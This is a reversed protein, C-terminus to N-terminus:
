SCDIMVPDESKSSENSCPRNHFDVLLKNSNVQVTYCIELSSWFQVMEHLNLLKASCKCGARQKIRSVGSYNIFVIFASVVRM